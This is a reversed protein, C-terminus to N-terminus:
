VISLGDAIRIGDRIFKEYRAEQEKGDPLVAALGLAGAVAHSYLFAPAPCEPGNVPTISGGSWFVAQALWGWPNDLGAQSAAVEAMRRHTEEPKKLWQAVVNKANKQIDQVPMDLSLVSQYGWWICEISPLAHCLFVILDQWQSNDYLQNALEVPSSNRDVQQKFSSSQQYRCLIDTAKPQPIKKLDLKDILM